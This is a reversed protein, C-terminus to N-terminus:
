DPTHSYDEKRPIAWVEVRNLLAEGRDLCPDTPVVLHYAFGEVLRLNFWRNVDELVCEISCGSWCIALSPESMGPIESKEFRSRDDSQM